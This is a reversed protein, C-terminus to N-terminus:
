SSPSFTHPIYPRLMWFLFLSISPDRPAYPCPDPSSLPQPPPVMGYSLVTSSGEFRGLVRGKLSLTWPSQPRILPACIPDPFTGRSRLGGFSASLQLSVEPIGLKREVFCLASSMIFLPHPHCCPPRLGHLHSTCPM